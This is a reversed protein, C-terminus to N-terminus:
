INYTCPYSGCLASHHSILDFCPPLVITILKPKSEIVSLVGEGVKGGGRGGNNSATM